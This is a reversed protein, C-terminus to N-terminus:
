TQISPHLIDWVPTVWCLLSCWNAVLLGFEPRLICVTGNDYSYPLVINEALSNTTVNLLGEQNGGENRSYIKAQYLSM